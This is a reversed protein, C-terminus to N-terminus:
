RADKEMSEAYGSRSKEFEAHMEASPVGVLEADESGGCGVACAFHISVTLMAFIPFVQKRVRKVEPNNSLYIDAVAYM